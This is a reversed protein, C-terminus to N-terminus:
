EDDAKEETQTIDALELQSPQYRQEFEFGFGRVRMTERLAALLQADDCIAKMLQYKGEPNSPFNKDSILPCSVWAGKQAIEFKKGGPLTFPSNNRLMDCTATQLDFGHDWYLAIPLTRGKPSIKNKTTNFNVMEGYQKGTKEDKLASAWMSLRYSAHFNLPRAALTTKKQEGPAKFGGTAIKERLQATIMLLVDRDELIYGKDRFWQSVVRAHKGLGSGNAASETDEDDMNAEAGFASISDLGVVIPAIKTPDIDAGRLHGTTWDINEFVAEISRIKLKPMIIGTPDAGFSAVFDPPAVTGESEEHVCWANAMRQAMAYQLMVYSSKGTGEEAEIKLMRGTLLGRAGWLWELGLCPMNRQPDCFDIYRYKAAESTVTEFGSDRKDAKANKMLAAMAGSMDMRKAGPAPAAVTPKAKAM